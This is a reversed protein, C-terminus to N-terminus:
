WGLRLAGGGGWIFPGGSLFKSATVLCGKSRATVLSNTSQGVGIREMEEELLRRQEKVQRERRCVSALKEDLKLMQKYAKQTKADEFHFGSKESVHSSCASATPARTDVSSPCHSTPTASDLRGSASQTDSCLSIPTSTNSRVSDEDESDSEEDIMTEKNDGVGMVPKRYSGTSEELKQQINDSLEIIRHYLNDRDESAAVEYEDVVEGHECELQPAGQPCHVGGRSSQNGEGEAVEHKVGVMNFYPATQLFFFSPFHVVWVPILLASAQPCTNQLVQETM